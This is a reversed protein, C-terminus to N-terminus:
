AWCEPTHLRDLGTFLVIRLEQLAAAQGFWLCHMLVMTPVM